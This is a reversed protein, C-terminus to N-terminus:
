VTRRVSMENNSGKPMGVKRIKVNSDKPNTLVDNNAESM